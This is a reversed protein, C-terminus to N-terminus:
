VLQCNYINLVMEVCNYHDYIATWGNAQKDNFAHMTKHLEHAFGGYQEKNKNNTYLQRFYVLEVRCDVMIIEARYSIQASSLKTLFDKRM